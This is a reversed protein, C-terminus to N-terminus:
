NWNTEDWNGSDWILPGRETTFSWIFDAAMKNGARDEVDSSITATYNTFFSLNSAPKFTAIMTMLDYTVTGNVTTTGSKLTFTNEDVSAPVMDESFTGTIDADIPFDAAGDSPDTSVVAPPITDDGIYEMDVEGAYTIENPSVTLNGIKGQWDVSGGIVTGDVLLSIDSGAPVDNITGKHDSCPWSDSAVASNSSDFVEVRITEIGYDVCIDGSPSPVARVGSPFYSAPEEFILSFSLSGTDSSTDSGGGDSGCAYLSFLIIVGFIPILHSRGIDKKRNLIEM